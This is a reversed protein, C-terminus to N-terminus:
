VVIVAYYCVSFQQSCACVLFLSKHLLMHRFRHKTVIHVVFIGSLSRSNCDHFVTATFVLTNHFNPSVPVM